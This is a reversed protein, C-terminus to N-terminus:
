DFLFCLKSTTLEEGDENESLPKGHITKESGVGFFSACGVEESQKQLNSQEETREFWDINEKGEFDNTQVQQIEHAKCKKEFATEDYRRYQRIRCPRDDRLLQNNVFRVNIPQRLESNNKEIREANKNCLNRTAGLFLKKRKLPSTEDSCQSGEYECMWKKFIHKFRRTEEFINSSENMDQSQHEEIKKREFLIRNNVDYQRNTIAVTSATSACENYMSHFDPFNMVDQPSEKEQHYRNCTKMDKSCKFIPENKKVGFDNHLKSREISNCISLMSYSSQLSEMSKNIMEKAKASGSISPMKPVFTNGKHEYLVDMDKTLSSPSSEIENQFMLFCITKDDELDECPNGIDSQVTEERGGVFIHFSSDSDDLFNSM